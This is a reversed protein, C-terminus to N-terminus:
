SLGRLYVKASINRQEWCDQTNKASCITGTCPVPIQLFFIGALPFLQFLVSDPIKSSLALNKNKPATGPYVCSLQLNNAQAESLFNGRMSDSKDGDPWCKCVASVPQFGVVSPYLKKLGGSGEVV